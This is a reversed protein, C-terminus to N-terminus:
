KLEGSRWMIEDALRQASYKQLHIGDITRYDPWLFNEWYCMTEPFVEKDVVQMSQVMNTYELDPVLPPTFLVVRVGNEQM